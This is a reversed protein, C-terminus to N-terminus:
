PSVMPPLFREVTYTIRARAHAMKGAFAGVSLRSGLRKAGRQRSCTDKLPHVVLPQPHATLPRLPPQSPNHPPSHPATLLATLPQPLRTTVDIRAQPNWGSNDQKTPDAGCELPFRSQEM